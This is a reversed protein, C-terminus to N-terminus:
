LLYVCLTHVHANHMCLGIYCIDLYYSAVDTNKLEVHKFKRIKYIHIADMCANITKYNTSFFIAFAIYDGDM